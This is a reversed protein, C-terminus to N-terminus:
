ASELILWGNVYSWRRSGEFRVSMDVLKKLPISEIRAGQKRVKVCLRLKTM